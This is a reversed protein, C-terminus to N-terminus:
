FSTIGIRSVHNAYRNGIMDMMEKKFMFLPKGLRSDNPLAGFVYNLNVWVEFESNNLHFLGAKMSNDKPKDLLDASIKDVIIGYLYKNLRGKNQQHDCASSIEIAILKSSSILAKITAENAAQQNAKFSKKFPMFSNIWDSYTQGFSKKMITAAQKMKLVVGREDNKLLKNEIHFITNLRSEKFDAPGTVDSIKGADQLSKLLADWKPDHDSRLVQHNLMQILAEYVAKDPLKKAHDIGLTSMAIKSFIKEFNEKFNTNNGWTDSTPIIDYIENVTKAAANAAVNEFDFLLRIINDNLVEKLKTELTTTKDLIEDKDIFSTIFPRPCKPHRAEVHVKFKEIDDKNQTWFILAFPGNSKSIYQEMATALTTFKQSDSGGGSPNINIDFFAVRIGSLPKKYHSDYEFTKCGIGNRYFEKSLVDLHEPKDDVIIIKNQAKFM